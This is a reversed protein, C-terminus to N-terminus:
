SLFAYTIGSVSELQALLEESTVFEASYGLTKELAVQQDMPVDAVLFYLINSVSVSSALSDHHDLTM